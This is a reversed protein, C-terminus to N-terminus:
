AAKKPSKSSRKKTGKSKSATGKSHSRSSNDTDNTRTQDSEDSVSTRSVLKNFNSKEGNATETQVVLALENEEFKDFWDDWSIEELSDAGSYGPFDLRIIGVDDQSETRRVASPKADREEAWSRIENHDTLTRSKSKSTM